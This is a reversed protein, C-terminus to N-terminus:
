ISRFRNAIADNGQWIHRMSAIGHAGNRYAETLNALELGGLAIVPITCHQVMEKFQPWGLPTGHPHTLTKQVPGLVVFDCGITQAQELEAPNHCSAAVLAFDPRTSLSMLQKSTLHVGHANVRQAMDFSSNILVQASYHKAIAMVKEALKGLLDEPLEKERLQILRLGRFCARELSELFVPETMQQGHTIGYVVPLQLGNLIKQNAPLMPTVKDEGWGQWALAQKELSQPEGQWKVVRFLHLRVHAHPYVFSESFWPYCQEVQIGLEEELERYLARELSENPEVKGGPFEWFGEYVKGVPRQAMLYRGKADVLVGVVVETIQSM